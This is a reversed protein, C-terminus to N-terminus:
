GRCFSSTPGSRSMEASKYSIDHLKFQSVVWQAGYSDGYAVSTRYAKMLAAAEEVVVTTDFPSEWEKVFDLVIREGEKHSIALVFSDHQGGSVDVGAIYRHAPQFPRHKVGVEVNARLVAEDIFGSLDGRFHGDLESVAAEPDDLRMREIEDDDAVPNLTRVDGRIVLVDDSPKAYHDRFREYLVGRKAYPSSIGIIPGKTLLLAPRLARLIERDPQSSEDTRWFSIEDAIVAVLSRGRTSRFSAAAVSITINNKLRVVEQTVEDVLSRLVPSEEFAARIYNLAVRAQDKNQAILFVYGIEGKALAASHDRLAALYVAIFSAKWLPIAM